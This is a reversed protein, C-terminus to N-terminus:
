RAEIVRYNLYCSIENLSFAKSKREVFNRTIQIIPYKQLFQPIYAEVEESTAKKKEKKPTQVVLRPEWDGKAMTNCQYLTLELTLLQQM